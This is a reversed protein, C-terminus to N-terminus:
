ISCFTGDRVITIITKRLYCNKQKKTKTKLGQIEYGEGRTIM